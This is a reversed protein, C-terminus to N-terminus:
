PWVVAATSVMSGDPEDSQQYRLLRGPGPECARLLLYTPAFGCVRTSDDHAAIVEFWGEADGRVAAALAARDKQEIEQRTREDLKPDGFRPGMHSLDIAGVYLTAGGHRQEAARLAAVFGEVREDERAALGQDLLAGFGGCLIPVIKVPRAGLRRQLYLAQFEISHEDRHALEAHYPDAGLAGALTDVFATDCELKGLPTQYHKRTLGFLDGQLSHGTGLVVVRLPEDQAPGLELYARAMTAGARRPDLHPALLARPRANAAAVPEGAAARLQGAQEFNSDLFAELAAPEAPYAHGELAAHRVELPHYAERLERYAAEFKPSDLMLLDDIQRIFERVMNGIRLDKSERMLAATIDNVSVSGDLLQLIGLAEIGLVPQGPIVGLPDSVLLLQRDKDTFPMLMLPRMRPYEPLDDPEDLSAGPPIVIRRTEAPPTSESGPLIIRGPRTPDKPDDPSM